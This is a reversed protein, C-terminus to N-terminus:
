RVLNATCALTTLCHCPLRLLHTRQAATSARLTLFCGATAARAPPANGAGGCAPSGPMTRCTGYWAATVSLRVTLFTGPTQPWTATFELSVAPASALLLSLLPVFAGCAVRPSIDM